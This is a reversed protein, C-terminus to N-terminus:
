NEAPHSRELKLAPRTVGVPHGAFTEIPPCLTESLGELQDREILEMDGLVVIAAPGLSRTSGGLDVIAIGRRREPVALCLLGEAGLKAIVAGNTQQMITTDIEGDGSILEPHLLMAERLRHIATRWEPWGTWQAEDPAALVAYARAFSRLPAGFTPISCGDTALTLESPSVGCAAVMIAKILRQLPHDPEVYQDVRWGAHRCAAVMGAHEGSCECIAQSPVVQGLTIRAQEAEDLPPTFGCRLDDESLGSKRLMSRVIDQHRSTGNHSACALALEETSFGYADAAGTTILPIAQFIKASSRFFVQIDPDGAWAVLDGNADVVAVNGQHV